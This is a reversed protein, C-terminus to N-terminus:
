RKEFLYFGDKQPFDFEAVLEQWKPTLEEGKNIIYEVMEYTAGLGGIHAGSYGLGRAISYMKAARDLRATKGKDKATREEDLQKLLKDTV